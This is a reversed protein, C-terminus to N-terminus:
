HPTYFQLMPGEFFGAVPWPTGSVKDFLQVTVTLRYTGPDIPTVAHNITLTEQYTRNEELTIPDIGPVGALTDVKHPGAAPLAYETGPGMSELFIQIQFEEDLSATLPGTMVWDLIVGWDQDTRIINKEREPVAEFVKAEMTGAYAPSPGYPTEFAPM